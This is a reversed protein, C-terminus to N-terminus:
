GVQRSRSVAERPLAMPDLDYPGIREMQGIHFPRRLDIM